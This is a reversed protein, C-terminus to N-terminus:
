TIGILYLNYVTDVRKIRYHATDGNAVVMSTGLKTTYITSYSLTRDAGNAKFILDMTGGDPITAHNIKSPLDLGADGNVYNTKLATYTIGNNAVSSASVSAISETASGYLTDFYTKLFAKLNAFTFKKLVNGNESDNFALKDDNVPTDKNSVGNMVSALSTANVEAGSKDLDQVGM